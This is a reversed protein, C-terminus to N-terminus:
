LAKDFVIVSRQDRRINSMLDLVGPWAIVPPM